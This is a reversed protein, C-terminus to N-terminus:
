QSKSRDIAANVLRNFPMLDTQTFNGHRAAIQTAEYLDHFIQVNIVRITELDTAGKAMAMNITIRDNLWRIQAVDGDESYAVFDSQLPLVAKNTVDVAPQTNSILLPPPLDATAFGGLRVIIAHAEKVDHAIQVQLIRIMEPNSAGQIQNTNIEIRDNLWRLKGVDFDGKSSALNKQVAVMLLNPSQIPHSIVRNSEANGFTFATLMMFTVSLVGASGILGSRFLRSAFFGSNSNTQKSNDM